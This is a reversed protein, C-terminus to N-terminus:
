DLVMDQPHPPHSPCYRNFLADVCFCPLIYPFTFGFLTGLGPYIDWGDTFKDLRDINSSNFHCRHIVYQTCKIALKVSISAGSIMSSLIIWRKASLYSNGIMDSARQPNIHSTLEISIAFLVSIMSAMAASTSLCTPLSASKPIGLCAQDESDDRILPTALNIDVIQQHLQTGGMEIM